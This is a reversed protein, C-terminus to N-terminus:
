PQKRKIFICCIQFILLKKENGASPTPNSGVSGTVLTLPKRSRGTRGSRCGELIHPPLLIRVKPDRLPALVKAPHRKLGSLWVESIFCVLAIYILHIYKGREDM